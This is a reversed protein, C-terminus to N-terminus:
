KHKWYLYDKVTTIIVWTSIALMQGVGLIFGITDIVQKEM